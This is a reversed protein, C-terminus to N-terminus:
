SLENKLRSVPFWGGAAYEKRGQAVEQILTKDRLEELIELLELLVEYSIMAKVPKGHDTVLDCDSTVDPMIRVPAPLAQLGDNFHRQIFHWSLLERHIELPKSPDMKM